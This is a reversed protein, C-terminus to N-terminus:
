QSPGSQDLLERQAVRRTAIEAVRLTVALGRKAIPVRVAMEVYGKKGPPEIPAWLQNWLLAGSADAVQVAVSFQDRRRDGRGTWHLDGNRLVIGVPLVWGAGQAAVAFAVIKAPLPQPATAYYGARTTLRVGRRLARAEIRHFKGDLRRDTPIYSAYYVGAEGGAAENLEATLDNSSYLAEGGTPAVAAAMGDHDGDRVERQFEGALRPGSGGTNPPATGDDLTDRTTALGAPDVGYLTVNARLADSALGRVDPADFVLRSQLEPSNPFYAQYALYAVQGPRFTFGPGLYILTKEGPLSGMFEIVARLAGLVDNAHWVVENAYANANPGACNSTRQPPMLAGGNYASTAGEADACARLTMILTRLPEDENWSSPRVPLAALAKLFQQPDTTFDEAILAERGITFLALPRGAAEGRTVFAAIAAKARKTAAASNSSDLVFALYRSALRADSAAARPAAGGTRPPAAAPAKVPADAPEFSDLQQRRGNEFIEVDKRTLGSVPQGKRDTARLVLNVITPNATFQAIKGPKSQANAAAPMSALFATALLAAPPLRPFRRAM